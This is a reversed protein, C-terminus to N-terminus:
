DSIKEEINETELVEEGEQKKETVNEEVKPVETSPVISSLYDYLDNMNGDVISLYICRGQFVGNMGRFLNFGYSDKEVRFVLENFPLENVSYVQNFKISIFIGDKTQEEFIEPTVVGFAPMTHCNAFLSEVKNKLEEQQDVTMEITKGDVMVDYSSAYPLVDVAEFLSMIMMPVGMFFFLIRWM